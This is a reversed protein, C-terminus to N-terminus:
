VHPFRPRSWGWQRRRETGSIARHRAWSVRKLQLAAGFSAPQEEAAVLLGIMSQSNIRRILRRDPAAIVASVAVSESRRKWPTDIRKWLKTRVLSSEDFDPLASHEVLGPVVVVGMPRPVVEVSGPRVWAQGHVTESADACVRALGPRRKTKVLRQAVFAVTTLTRHLGLAILSYGVTLTNSDTTSTVLNFEFHVDDTM